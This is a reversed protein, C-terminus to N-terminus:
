ATAFSDKNLLEIVEDNARQRLQVVKIIKTVNGDEIARKQMRDLAQHTTNFFMQIALLKEKKTLAGNKLVELIDKAPM